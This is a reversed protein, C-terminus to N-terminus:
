CILVLYKKCIEYVQVLLLWVEVKKDNEKKSADDINSLSMLRNQKILIMLLDQAGQTRYFSWAHFICSRHKILDKHRNQLLNLM